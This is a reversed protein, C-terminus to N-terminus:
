KKKYCTPRFDFGYNSNYNVGITITRLASNFGTITANQIGKKGFKKNLYLVIIVYILASTTHAVFATKIMEILM